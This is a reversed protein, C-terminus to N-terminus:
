PGMLLVGPRQRIGDELIFVFLLIFCSLLCLLSFAFIDYFFIGGLNTNLCRFTSVRKYHRFSVNEFREM